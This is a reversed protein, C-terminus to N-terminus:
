TAANRKAELPVGRSPPDAANLKGPVWVVVIYRKSACLELIKKVLDVILPCSSSGKTLAAVAVTPAGMHVIELARSRTKETVLSGGWRCVGLAPMCSSPVGCTIELLNGATVPRSEKLFPASVVAPTTLSSPGFAVSSAYSPFQCPSALFPASVTQPTSVPLCGPSMPFGNFQGANPTAAFSAWVDFPQRFM